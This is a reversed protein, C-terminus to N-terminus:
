EKAFHNHVGAFPTMEAFDYFFLERFQLASTTEVPTFNVHFGVVSQSALEGIFNRHNKNIPALGELVPHVLPFEQFFQHALIKGIKYVSAWLACRTRM